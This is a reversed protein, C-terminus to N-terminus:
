NEELVRLPGIILSLHDPETAPAKVRQAMKSGGGGVMKNQPLLTKNSFKPSCFDEQRWGGFHQPQGGGHRPGYASV